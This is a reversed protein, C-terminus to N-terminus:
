SGVENVHGGVVQWPGRSERAWIRTYRYTGRSVTGAVEVALRARLACVAVNGGVRRIRLDVPEHGRFRIAGSGHAELDQAKSGLTGDPGTFLLDDHILRDLAAVDATLQATRLECELGVIEPDPQGVLAANMTTNEPNSM